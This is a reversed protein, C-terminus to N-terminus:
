PFANAIKAEVGTEEFEAFEGDTAPTLIPEDDIVFHIGDKSRAAMLVSQGNMLEVRILLITQGQYITAGANMINLCSFPLDNPTIIPNGEWRDIIDHQQAHV